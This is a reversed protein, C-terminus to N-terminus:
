RVITSLSVALFTIAVTFYATGLAQMLVLYLMATWTRGDTFLEQLRTMWPKDRQTYLPRRPMREGLLVEM